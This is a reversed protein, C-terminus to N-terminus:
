LSSNNNLHPCVQSVKHFIEETLSHIIQQYYHHNLCIQPSIWHLRALASTLLLVAVTMCYHPLQYFKSSLEGLFYKATLM